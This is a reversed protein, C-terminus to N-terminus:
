QREKMAGAEAELRRMHSRVAYLASTHDTWGVCRAIRPYSYGLDFRLRYCVEQRALSIHNFRARSFIDIPAVGHRIAIEMIIARPRAPKAESPVSAPFQYHPLIAPLSTMERRARAIFRRTQM